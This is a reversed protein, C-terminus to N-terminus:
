KRSTVLMRLFLYLAALIVLIGWSITWARANPNAKKLYNYCYKATEIRPPSTKNQWAKNVAMEFHMPMFFTGYFYQSIRKDPTILIIAASHIFGDGNRKFRWGAAITLKAINESDSTFFHWYKAAYKKDMTAIYNDKKARALSPSEHEDISITFVQYHTGIDISSKDILEAIGKTLPSCLGPCRYYVFSLVTPKDILPMINMKVSDENLVWITDPLSAGTYEEIGYFYDNHQGSFLTGCLMLQLILAIGITKKM